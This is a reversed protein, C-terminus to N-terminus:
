VDPEEKSYSEVLAKEFLEDPFPCPRLIHVDGIFFRSAPKHQACKSEHYKFYLLLMIGVYVTVCMSGIVLVASLRSLLVAAATKKKKAM